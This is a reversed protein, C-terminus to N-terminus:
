HVVLLIVAYSEVIWVTRLTCVYLTFYQVIGVDGYMIIYDLTM